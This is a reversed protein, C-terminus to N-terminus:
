WKIELGLAGSHVQANHRLRADYNAYLRLANTLRVSAAAGTDVGFRAEQLGDILRLIGPASPSTVSPAQVDQDLIDVVRAFASLDYLTRGQWWSYGIEAGGFARLRTRESGSATVPDPGGAETFADTRVETWDLGAKPVFRWNGSSWYYSIEGIAGWLKAGYSARAFEPTTTARSSNVDAFGHILAGAVTWPGMEYSGQVGLQTLNLRGRQDLADINVRTRSQDVSFGISAGPALTIGFGGVAGATTRRDGPVAATADNHAWQGYGESWARYRKVIQAMDDGGGQADGRASGFGSGSEDTLRRMFRTGLDFLATENATHVIGPPDPPIPPPSYQASAAGTALAFAAGLAATMATTHLRSVM